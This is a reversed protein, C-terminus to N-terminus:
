KWMEESDLLRVDARVSLSSLYASQREVRASATDEGGAIARELAETITARMTPTGLVHQARRVLEQDLEVTTRRIM